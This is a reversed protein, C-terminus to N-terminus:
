LESADVHLVYEPNEPDIDGKSSLYYNMGGDEIRDMNYDGSQLDNLVEQNEETDDLGPFLDHWPGESFYDAIESSRNAAVAENLDNFAKEGITRPEVVVVDFCNAAPPECVESENDWIRNIGWAEKYSPTQSTSTQDEKNSSTEEIAEEKEKECSM